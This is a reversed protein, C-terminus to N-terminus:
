IEDITLKQLLDEVDDLNCGIQELTQKIAVIILKCVFAPCGDDCTIDDDSDRLQQLLDRTCM